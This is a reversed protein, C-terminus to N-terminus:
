FIFCTLSNKLESDEVALKVTKEKFDFNYYFLLLILTEIKILLFMKKLTTVLKYKSWNSNKAFM